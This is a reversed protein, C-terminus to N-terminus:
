YAFSYTLQGFKDSKGQGAFEESRRVIAFGLRQLGWTAAVGLQLDWVFRKREVSASDRFTNGDLFINRAVLRADAGAWAYWGRQTANGRYGDRAPGLSIHTAPFDDPLNRGIRAVTGASAYTFVNGVTAGVRPTFDLELRDFSASAIAPWAREYGLLLAPENRLQANWGRSDDERLIRHVANQAQRGLSAPGVVGVSVMFHDLAHARRTRFEALAYLWGAYPRDRPDAIETTTNAPTYIRQGVAFTYRSDLAEGFPQLALVPRPLSATNALIALQFGNTYHRDFGAFFDNDLTLTAEGGAAMAPWAALAVPIMAAMAAAFRARIRRM